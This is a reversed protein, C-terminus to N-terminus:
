LMSQIRQCLVQIIGTALDVHESILEHLTEYDLRFLHSDEVATVSASRPEPNLAALEGVIQRPGLHAIDKDGDHVKVQGSIIIYMSRGLEGKTVIRRGAPAKVYKLTLAVEALTEEPINRFISVSKLILVKELTLLM